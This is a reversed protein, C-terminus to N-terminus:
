FKSAVSFTAELANKDLQPTALVVTITFDNGKTGRRQEDPFHPSGTSSCSLRSSGIGGQNSYVQILTFEFERLITMAIGYERKGGDNELIVSSCSVM